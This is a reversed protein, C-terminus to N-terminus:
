PPDQLRYFGRRTGRAIVKKWAACGRFLDRLRPKDADGQASGARDLIDKQSLEPINKGRAEWLVRLCHAQMVSFGFSEKGWRLVRFDPSFVFARGEAARLDSARWAEARCEAFIGAASEPSLLHAPRCALAAEHWCTFTMPHGSAGLYLRLRNDGEVSRYANIMPPLLPAAAAACWECVGDHDAVHSPIAGAWRSETLPVALYVGDPDLAERARTAAALCLAALDLADKLDADPPAASERCYAPPHPPM